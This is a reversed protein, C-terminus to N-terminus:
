AHRSDLQGDAMWSCRGKGLQAGEVKCSDFDIIVSNEGDMMINSPNLNNNILGLGHLHQIGDEIGRM